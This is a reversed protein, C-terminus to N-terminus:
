AVMLPNSIMRMIRRRWHKRHLGLTSPSIWNTLLSKSIAAQDTQACAFFQTGSLNICCLRKADSISMVLNDVSDDASLAPRTRSIPRTADAPSNNEQRVAKELDQKCADIATSSCIAATLTREAVQRLGPAPLAPSGSAPVYRELGAYDASLEGNRERVRWVHSPAILVASLAKDIIQLIWLV